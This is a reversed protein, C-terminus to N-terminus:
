RLKGDFTDGVQHGQFGPIGVSGVALGYIDPAQYFAGKSHPRVADYHSLDTATLGNIHKLSHIGAM